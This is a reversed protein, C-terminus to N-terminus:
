LGPFVLSFACLIIELFLMGTVRSSSSGEKGGCNLKDPVKGLQNTGQEPRVMGRFNTDGLTVLLHSVTFGTYVTPTLIHGKGCLGDEFRLPKLCSFAKRNKRIVAGPKVRDSSSGPVKWRTCGGDEMEGQLTVM